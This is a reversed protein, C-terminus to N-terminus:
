KSYLEVILNENIEASIIPDNGVPQGTTQTPETPSQTSPSSYTETPAQEKTQDKNYLKDVNEHIDVNYNDGDSDKVSVQFDHHNQQNNKKSNPCSSDIHIGGGGGSLRSDTANSFLFIGIGFVMVLIVIVILVFIFTNKTASESISDKTKSFFSKIKDTFKNHSSELIVADNNGEM